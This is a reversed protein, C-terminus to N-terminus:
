PQLGTPREGHRAATKEWEEALWLLYARRPPEADEAEHRLRAAEAAPLLPTPRESTKV